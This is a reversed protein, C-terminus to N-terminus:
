RSSHRVIGMRLNILGNEFFNLLARDPGHRVRRSILVRESTQMRRMLNIRRRVVFVAVYFLVAVAGLPHRRRVEEAAAAVAPHVPRRVEEAIWRVLRAGGGLPPNDAACSSSM